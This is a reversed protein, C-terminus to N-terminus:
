LPSAGSPAFSHSPQMAAPGEAGAPASIRTLGRAISDHGHRAESPPPHNGRSLRAGNPGSAM